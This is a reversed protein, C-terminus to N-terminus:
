VAVIKRKNRPHPSNISCRSPLLTNAGRPLITDRLLPNNTLSNTRCTQLALSPVSYHNRTVLLFPPPPPPPRPLILSVFTSLWSFSLFSLRWSTTSRVGVLVFLCFETISLRM